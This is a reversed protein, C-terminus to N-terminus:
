LSIFSIVCNKKEKREGCGGWVLLYAVIKTKLLSYSNMRPMNLNQLCSISVLQLISNLKRANGGGLMSKSAISSPVM